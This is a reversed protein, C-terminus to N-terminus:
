PGVGSWYSGMKVWDIVDESGIELYVRLSQLRATLMIKRPFCNLGVTDYGEPSEGVWPLTQSHGFAGAGHKGTEKLSEM